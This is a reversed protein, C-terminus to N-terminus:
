PLPAPCAAPRATDRRGGNSRSDARVALPQGHRRAGRGRRRLRHGCASGAGGARQGCRRQGVRSHPVAAKVRAIEDAHIGPEYMEQRTRGHVTLMAVGADECRKAVEAGTLTARGLRLAVKGDCAGRGGRGAGGRAGGARGAGANEAAGLRRGARNDEPGPLWTSTSLISIHPM